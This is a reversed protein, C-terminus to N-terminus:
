RGPPPAIGMFIVLRATGKNEVGHPVGAAAWVVHGPGTETVAEGVTFHGNGELVLYFKDQDDHTHVHQKQGSELCNLGIMLQEGSFLTTKFFKEAKSGVYDRYDVITESMTFAEKDLSISQVSTAPKVLKACFKRQRLFGTGRQVYNLSHPIILGM